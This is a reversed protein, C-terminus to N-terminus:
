VPRRERGARYDLLSADNKGTEVWAQMGRTRRKLGVFYRAILTAQVSPSSMPEAPQSAGDSMGLLSHRNFHSTQSRIFGGHGLWYRDAKRLM